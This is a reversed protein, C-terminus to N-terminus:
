DRVKEQGNGWGRQGSTALVNRCHVLDGLASEGGKGTCSGGEDVQRRREGSTQRDARVHGRRFIGANGLHAVWDGGRAHAHSQQALRQGSHDVLPLIDLELKSFNFISVADPVPDSASAITSTLARRSSELRNVDKRSKRRLM